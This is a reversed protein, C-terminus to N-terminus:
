GDRADAGGVSADCEEDVVEDCSNDIGDCMEM